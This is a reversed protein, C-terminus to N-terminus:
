LVVPVSKKSKNEEDLPYEEIIEGYMVVNYIDARSIDREMMRSLCHRSYEFSNNKSFVARLLQLDM